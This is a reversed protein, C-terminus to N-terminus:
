SRMATEEDAGKVVYTGAEFSLRVKDDRRETDLVTGRDVGLIYDGPQVDRAPILRM